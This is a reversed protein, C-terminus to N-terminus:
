LIDERFLLLLVFIIFESFHEGTVTTLTVLVDNTGRSTEAGRKVTVILLESRSRRPGYWVAENKHLDGLNGRILERNRHLARWWRVKIKGYDSLGSLLHKTLHVRISRFHVPLFRVYYNLIDGRLIKVPCRFRSTRPIWFRPYEGVQLAASASSLQQLFTLSHNSTPIIRILKHRFLYFIQDMDFSWKWVGSVSIMSLPCCALMDIANKHPMCAHSKSM